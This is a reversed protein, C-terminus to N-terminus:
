KKKRPKGAAVATVGGPRSVQGRRMRSMEDEAARLTDERLQADDLLKELEAAEAEHQARLAEIQAELLKRKRSLERRKRDNEQQRVVADAQEKAEQAVRASGMLVRDTGIYADILAVGTSNITFERIQNSHSSGRAKLIYLGRNREGNSELNRLLIWTDMMSSVGVDTAVESTTGHTLSLFVATILQSKFFDILRNLAAHVELTTGVDSFNTMPDIIVAHPAYDAVNKHILALHMELGYMSPRTAVIRLLGRDLWRQLDVGISRMNRVIQQPSEEFAFYLCREGRSCVANAFLASMSSKGSGATGSILVSSGRYYGSGGLMEDLRPIGSSIREDSVRHDLASSTIPLVSFGEDSILFPYENTGHRSGRYKVVRLRRTSLQETVRHDLLLVCDSVYEEFGQRTLVGDGREATIIATVGRAKLWVLLRRLEARLINENKFTGFLVELTDIAVRKAGISDIALGLRIFLGELDYEGVEEIETPDLHVYDVFIRKEAALTDLNFGISAVNARLDQPTEEFALFVGPENFQTAGRVLFEMALLTKGCGASGCVLTTRGLPLGGSTIEDLGSIGTPAKELIPLPPPPPQKSRTAKSM